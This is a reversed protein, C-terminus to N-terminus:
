VVDPSFGRRILDFRRLSGFIFKINKHRRPLLSVVKTSLPRCSHGRSVVQVVEATSLQWPEPQVICDKGEHRTLSVNALVSPFTQSNGTNLQICTHLHLQICCYGRGLLWFEIEM